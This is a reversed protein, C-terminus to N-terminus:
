PAILIWHAVRGDEIRFVSIFPTPEAAGPDWNQQLAVVNRGHSVMATTELKRGPFNGAVRLHDERLAEAGELLVVNNNRQIETRRPSDTFLGALEALNPCAPEAYCAERAQTVTTILDLDDQMSARALGLGITGVFLGAAAALGVRWHGPLRQLM